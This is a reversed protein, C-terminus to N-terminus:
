ASSARRAAARGHPANARSGAGRDSKADRARLAGVEFCVFVEVNRRPGHRELVDLTLEIFRPTKESQAFRGGLRGLTAVGIRQVIPNELPSVKMEGLGADDVLIPKAIRLLALVDIQSGTPGQEIELGVGRFGSQSTQREDIGFSLAKSHRGLLDNERCSSHLVSADQQVGQIFTLERIRVVRKSSPEHIM